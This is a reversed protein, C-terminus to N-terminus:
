SSSDALSDAIESLIEFRPPDFLHKKVACQDLSREIAPLYKAPFEAPLRLRSRIVSVMETEPSKETELTLQLESTDIQRQQCFRLAYFGMCTAISALFLDFPPSATDTGGHKERQDTPVTHGAIHADVRLGGPFTVDILM